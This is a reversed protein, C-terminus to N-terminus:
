VNCIAYAQRLSEVPDRAPIFEQGLFGTYGTAVIANCIAPYYLEQSEDIERRGPVGGTHYHAIFEHYDRITRIVDGEMIQMHYIDYLLRFRESEVEKCLEVGWPTRDCQYGKHDVKSNLLEMIVTVGAREALPMVRRLAEACHELGAADDFEVRRNGSFVIMTPIGADRVKPLLAECDAVFKDHTERRNIGGGISVPGNAVACDLGFERVVPWDAEGLLEVSRYGLEDAHRCLTPLEIGGYCWRCISQRLPGRHAHIKGPQHEPQSWGAASAAAASSGVIAGMGVGVGVGMTGLAKRRDM